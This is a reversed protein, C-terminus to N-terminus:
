RKLNQLPDASAALTALLHQRRDYYAYIREILEEALQREGNACACDALAILEALDQEEDDPLAAAVVSYRIHNMTAKADPARPRTVIPHAIKKYFLFSEKNDLSM